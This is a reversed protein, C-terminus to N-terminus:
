SDHEEVLKVDDIYIVSKRDTCYIWPEIEEERDSTFEVAFRTWDFAPKPAPFKVWIRRVFKGDGPKAFTHLWFGTAVSVDGTEAQRKAWGSFRYSRGPVLRVRKARVVCNEPHGPNYLRLCYQGAHAGRPTVQALKPNGHITFGPIRGEADPQEEFGGNKLLNGQRAPPLNEYLRGLLAKEEARSQEEMECVARYIEPRSKDEGRLELIRRALEGRLREYTISPWLSKNVVPAGTLLSYGRFISMFRVASRKKLSALFRASDLAESGNKAVVLDELMQVLNNDFIAEVFMEWPLTTVDPAGDPAYIMPQFSGGLLIDGKIKGWKYPDIGDLNWGWGWYGFTMRALRPDHGMIVGNHYVVYVSGDKEKRALIRAPSEAEGGEVGLAIGNYVRYDVKGHLTPFCAAILTVANRGGGAHVADLFPVLAPSSIYGPEDWIEFAPVTLHRAKRAEINERALATLNDFFSQPLKGECQYRDPRGKIRPLGEKRMASWLIDDSGPEYGSIYRASERLGTKKLLTFFHEEVDSVRYRWQGDDGRQYCDRAGMVHVYDIGHRKIDEMQYGMEEVLLNREADTFRPWERWLGFVPPNYYISNIQRQNRPTFPLVVVRFRRTALMREGNYIRLKGKYVGPAANQAVDILLVYPQTQGSDLWTPEIRTLVHPVLGSQGLSGRGMNNIQYRTMMPQIKLESDKTEAACRVNKFERLAHFAFQLAVRGGPAAITGHMGRGDEKQPVYDRPTTHAAPLNVLAFGQKRESKSIFNGKLPPYAVWLKMQDLTREFPYHSFDRRLWYIARRAEPHESRPYVAMFNLVWRTGPRATVTLRVPKKGDASFDVFRSLPWLRPEYNTLSKKAGNVDIQMEYPALSTKLHTGSVLLARYEGAPVDFLFTMKGAGTVYDAVLPSISPKGYEEGTPHEVDKMKASDKAFGYDRGANYRDSARVHIVGKPYDPQAVGAADASAGFDFVRLFHYQPRVPRKALFLSPDSQQRWIRMQERVPEGTFRAVGFDAPETFRYTRSWTSLVTKGGPASRDERGIQLGWTKNEKLAKLDRPTFSDLGIRAEVTWAKKGVLTAAEVDSNWQASPIMRETELLRHQVADWIAGRSNIIWHYFDNKSHETDLLIEVVDDKYARHADRGSKEAVVSKPDHSDCVIGFYLNKADRCLYVETQEKVTRKLRDLSLFNTLRSAKKWVPDDLKGDIIPGKAILPIVTEKPASYDVEDGQAPQIIACSAQFISVLGLIRAIDIKKNMPLSFRKTSM